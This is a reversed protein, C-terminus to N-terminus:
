DLKIYNLKIEWSIYFKIYSKEGNFFTSRLIISTDLRTNLPIFKENKRPIKPFFITLNITVKKQFIIFKQDREDQKSMHSDRVRSKLIM